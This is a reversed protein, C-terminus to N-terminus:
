LFLFFFRSSCSFTTFSKSETHLKGSILYCFNQSFHLFLLGTLFDKPQGVDMWFGRLVYAYLDGAEAMGPFVEKEISTPTNYRIRKLM